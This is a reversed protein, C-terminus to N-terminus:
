GLTYGRGQMCASFARDYGDRQQQLAAAQQQQAQQQKQQSSRRRLAGLTAGAIAGKEAGDSGDVIGGVAAGVAAGKLAGGATTQGSSTPEPQAQMPDFGSQTKGFQYCGYKDQEQQEPSQGQAPYIFPDAAIALQWCAVGAVLLVMHTAKFLPGRTHTKM